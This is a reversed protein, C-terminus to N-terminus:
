LHGAQRAPQGSDKSNEMDLTHGESQNVGDILPTGPFLVLGGTGVLMPNIQPFAFLFSFAPLATERQDRSRGM